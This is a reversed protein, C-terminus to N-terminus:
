ARNPDTGDFRILVDSDSASASEIAWGCWVTYLGAKTASVRANTPDLYVWDGKAITQGTGTEKDALVQWSEQVVTVETRETYDQDMIYFGYVDQQNVVDGKTVNAGITVYNPIYNPDRNFLSM